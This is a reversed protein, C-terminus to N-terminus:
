RVIERAEAAVLSTFAARGFVGICANVLWEVLGLVLGMASVQVLSGTGLGFALDFVWFLIAVVVFLVLWCLFVLLVAGPRRGILRFGAGTGRAAGSEPLAVAPPSTQNWLVLVFLAFLFPLAGGCGIGYAAAGGWAEYGLVAGLAILTYLLLLGLAFALGIQLWWFYRWMYLGGWGAFDRGTTAAFWAVGGARDQADPLAQREAAVLVGYIGGEFWAWVIMALTGVVLSAVLALTLALPQSSAAALLQRLWIEAGEVTWDVDLLARGGLVLFPPLLSLLFLLLTCLGQLLALPVLVWNARLSLGARRLCDVASRRVMSM